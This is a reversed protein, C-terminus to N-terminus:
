SVSDFGNFTVSVCSSGVLSSLEVIFTISADVSPPFSAWTLSDSSSDSVIALTIASFNSALLLLNLTLFIFSTCLPTSCTIERSGGGSGGSKDTESWGNTARGHRRGCGLGGSIFLYTSTFPDITLSGDGDTDGTGSELTLM